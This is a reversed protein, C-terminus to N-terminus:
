RRNAPDRAVYVTLPKVAMGAPAIKNIDVSRRDLGDFTWSFQQGDNRFTVTEGYRVNIKPVAGLDVVRAGTAERSPQGYFSQGNIFTELGAAFTAASATNLGLIAITRLLRPPIM